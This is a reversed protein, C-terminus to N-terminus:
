TGIVQWSLTGGSGNGTNSIYANFSVNTNISDGSAIQFASNGEGQISVLGMQPTTFFSSPLTWTVHMTGATSSYAITGWAMKLGGLNIFWGVPSTFSGGSVNSLSPTYTQVGNTADLANSLALNNAKVSNTAMHRNVIIQDNFGNGTNFSADNFGLVNWFATTPIEGATVSWPTYGSSSM